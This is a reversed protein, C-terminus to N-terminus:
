ISGNPSPKALKHLASNFMSVASRMMSRGDEDFVLMKLVASSQNPIPFRFTENWRPNLSKAIVRTRRTDNSGHVVSRAILILLSFM